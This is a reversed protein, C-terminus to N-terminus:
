LDRAGREGAQRDDGRVQARRRWIGQCLQHEERDSRELGTWESVLQHFDTDPDTRYRAVAEKAKRLGHKAAYHVIFRFEQQSVDPKAWVEGEEPLFVGRILPALEEDHATMQQLPPHSYSFRLSRTGGDDSRHPHIEAHVRGNVAHDLIYTQLFKRQLTTSKDAKVILRPLWHEHKPMWGTGAHIVPQREGHASLCHWTRRLNGGAVQQPRDGGHRRARWAERVARSLHRGAEAAIIAPRSPRPSTSVFAAGDCRTCWRCCTLSLGTPPARARRTSSPISIRSCRWPTRPTPTPTPGLLRAPLQWIHSQLPNKKSVKFGATKIAESLVTEDKGPLGRWACLADLSYSYRNEDVMTALAGIEELRDSPPMVIGARRTALGLRVSRKPHRHARRLRDSGAAVPLGADPDFNESDPHRLPFYHARIEGDARYAVSVGCIYGGHWPWGVRSRRAARTM